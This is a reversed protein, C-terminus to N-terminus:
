PAVSGADAPAAPPPPGDSLPGAAVIENSSPRYLIVLKSEFFLFIVDGTEAHELFAQESRARAADEIVITQPKEEPLPGLEKLKALMSASEEESLGSAGAAAGDPGPASSPKTGFYAILGGVLVLIVILAILRPDIKKSATDTM